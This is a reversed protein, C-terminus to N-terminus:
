FTDEAMDRRGRIVVPSTPEGGPVDLGDDVDVDEDDESDGEGRGRGDGERCDMEDLDELDLRRMTLDMEAQLRRMRAAEDKAAGPRHEDDNSTTVTDDAGATTLLDSIIRKSAERAAGPLSM